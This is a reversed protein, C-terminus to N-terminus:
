GLRLTRESPRQVSGNSIQNSMQNLLSAGLKWFCENIRLSVVHTCVVLISWNESGSFILIMFCCLSFCGRSCVLHLCLVFHLFLVGNGVSWFCELVLEYESSSSNFTRNFFCTLFAGVNLM